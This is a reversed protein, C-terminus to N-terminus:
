ITYKGCPLCPMQRPHCKEPPAASGRLLLPLLSVRPMPVQHTRISAAPKLVTYACDPERERPHGSSHLHTDKEREGHPIPPHHSTYPPCHYHF